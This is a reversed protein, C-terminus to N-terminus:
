RKLKKLRERGRRSVDKLLEQASTYTTYRGERLDRLGADLKRRLAAEEKALLRDERILQRVYDTASSSTGTAVQSQLHREEAKSLPVTLVNSARSMTM